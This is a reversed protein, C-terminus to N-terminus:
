FAAQTGHILKIKKKKLMLSNEGKCREKRNRGAFGITQIKQEEKKLGVAQSQETHQV